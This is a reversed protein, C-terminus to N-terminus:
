ALELIQYKMESNKTENPKFVLASGNSVAEALGNTPYSSFPELGIVYAKGFWPYDSAGGFEQWYWLYPFVTKDWSLKISLGNTPSLIQYEANDFNFIYLMESKTGKAPILSFDILSGSDSISKPWIFDLTSGLRRGASSIEVSHPRVLCKSDIKIFTKNDLFPHGFTVHNGWMASIQKDSLNTIKESLFITSSNKKLTYIKEYYCNIKKTKLFFKVSIENKNNLIFEYKWPLLAVEDHQSFDVGEFTSPAGGNPFISQWGGPYSDIFSEFNATYNESTKKTPYGQPSQWALNVKKPKYYIEVLDAGKDALFSLRLAENEIRVIEIEGSFEGKSHHFIESEPM